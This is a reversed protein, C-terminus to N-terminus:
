KDDEEDEDDVEEIQVFIRRNQEFFKELGPWETDFKKFAKQQHKVQAPPFTRQIGLYFLLIGHLEAWTNYIKWGETTYGQYFPETDMMKHIESRSMEKAEAIDYMERAKKGNEVDLDYFKLTEHFIERATENLDEKELSNYLNKLFGDENQKEYIMDAYFEANPLANNTLM